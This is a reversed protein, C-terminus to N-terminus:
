AATRIWFMCRFSAGRWCPRHAALGLIVALIILPPLLSRRRSGAYGGFALVIGAALLMAGDRVFFGPGLAEHVGPLCGCNSGKLESYHMGMYVIFAVLLAGTLVAGARRWGPFLLLIGAFVELSGLFVVFPLAYAAKVHATVVQISEQSPAYLKLAGTLIFYGGLGLALIWIVALGVNRLTQKEM